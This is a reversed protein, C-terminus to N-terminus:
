VRSKTIVLTGNLVTSVNGVNDTVECEYYKLGSLDQTDKPDLKVEFIGNVADTITIGSGVEKLVTDFGFKISAGTLDVPSNNETVTVEIIKTDGAYLNM